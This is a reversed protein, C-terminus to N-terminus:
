WNWVLTDQGNPVALFFHGEPKIFSKLNRMRLLDANPNIPDGYRGVGDHELSSYSVLVDFSFDLKDLAAFSLTHFGPHDFKPENFDVSPVINFDVCSAINSRRRVHLYGQGGICLM